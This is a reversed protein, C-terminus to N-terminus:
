IGFRWIWAAPVRRTSSLKWEEFPSRGLARALRERPARGEGSGTLGGSARVAVRGGGYVAIGEIQM